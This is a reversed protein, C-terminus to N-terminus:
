PFKGGETHKRKLPNQKGPPVHCSLGSHIEQAQPVMLIALFLPPNTCLERNRKPPISSPDPSQDKPFTPTPSGQASGFCIRRKNQEEKDQLSNRPCRSGFAVLDAGGEWSFLFGPIPIPYIGAKEQSRMGSGMRSWGM